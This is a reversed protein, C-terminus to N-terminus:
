PQIRLRQPPHDEVVGFVLPSGHEEGVVERKRRQRDGAEALVAPLCLQEELPDVLVKADPTKEARTFGRHLCLDPDGDAHVHEHRDHLLFL